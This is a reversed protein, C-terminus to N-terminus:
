RSAGGRTLAASAEHVGGTLRWARAVSGIGHQALGGRFGADRGTAYERQQVRRAVGTPCLGWASQGWRQAHRAFSNPPCMAQVVLELSRGVITSRQGLLLPGNRVPVARAM